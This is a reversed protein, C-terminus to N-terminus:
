KKAMLDREKVRHCREVTDCITYTDDDNIATVIGHFNLKPYYVSDNMSFHKLSMDYLANYADSKRATQNISKKYARYHLNLLAEYDNLLQNKCCRGFYLFSANQNKDVLELLEETKNYLTQYDEEELNDKNKLVWYHIKRVESALRDDRPDLVWLVTFFVFLVGIVVFAIWM